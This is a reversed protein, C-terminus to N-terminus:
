KGNELWEKVIDNSKLYTQLRKAMEYGYVRVLYDMSLIEKLQELIELDQKVKLIHEYCDKEKPTAKKEDYQSVLLDIFDKSTM